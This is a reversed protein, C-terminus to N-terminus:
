YCRGKIYHTYVYGEITVGNPKTRDPDGNENQHIYENKVEGEELFEVFNETYLQSTESSWGMHGDYPPEYFTAVSTVGFGTLPAYRNNTGLSAYSHFGWIANPRMPIDYILDGIMHYFGYEGQMRFERITTFVSECNFGHTMGYQTVGEDEPKTMEVKIQNQDVIFNGGVLDIISDFSMSRVNATVGHMFDASIYSTSDVIDSVMGTSINASFRPQTTFMIEVKYNFMDWDMWQRDYDPELTMEIHKLDNKHFACCPKRLLDLTRVDFQNYHMVHGYTMVVDFTVPVHLNAIYLINSMIGYHATGGLGITYELDTDVGIGLEFDSAFTYLGEQTDLDFNSTLGLKYEIDNIYPDDSYRMTAYSEHGYWMDVTKDASWLPNYSNFILFTNASLGYDVDITKNFDVLNEFLNIILTTNVSHGYESVIITPFPNPAGFTMLTDSEFGVDSIIDTAFPSPYAFLVFTDASYGYETIVPVEFNNGNDFTVTANANYNYYFNYDSTFKNDDYILRASVEHGYIFSYQNEFKNNDFILLTNVSQGYTYNVEGEFPNRVDYVMLTNASLGYDFSVERNFEHYPNFIVKADFEQGIALNLDGTFYNQDDFSILANVSHGFTLNNDLYTYKFLTVDLKQGYAFDVALRMDAVRIIADSKFGITSEVDYIDLSFLTSSGFGYSNIIIGFDISGGTGGGTATCDILFDNSDTRADCICNYKFSTTDPDFYLDTTCDPPPPPPCNQKFTNDEYSITTCGCDFTFTNKEPDIYPDTFCPTNPNTPNTPTTNGFVFSVSTKNVDIKENDKFLFILKDFGAVM